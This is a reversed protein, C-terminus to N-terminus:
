AGDGTRGRSRCPCRSRLSPPGGPRVRSRRRTPHRRPEKPDVAAVVALQDVRELAAAVNAKRSKEAALRAKIEDGALVGDALADLLRGLRGEIDELERELQRRRSAEHSRAYAVKDLAKNVAPELVEPRLADIIALLVARDLTDQRLGVGNTCVTDGQRKHDLCAYHPVHTRHGNSGHARLDTGVAGGCVGCRAFGVLLYSSEDQYRPRGALKKGIRPYLTARRELRVKVRQSLEDSVIKLEPVPVTLWEEKGRHIQRKTGRRTVKQLRGWVLEGRYAPRYLMERIGSPAWGRGRPPKVAEENLRHAITTM